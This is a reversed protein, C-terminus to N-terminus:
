LVEFGSIDLSLSVSVPNSLMFAVDFIADNKERGDKDGTIGVIRWCNMTWPAHSSFEVDKGKSDLFRWSDGAQILKSQSNYFELLM